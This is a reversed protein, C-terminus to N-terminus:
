DARFFRRQSAAEEAEVQDAYDAVDSDAVPIFEGISAMARLAHAASEHLSGDKAQITLSTGLYGAKGAKHAMGFRIRGRQSVVYGDTGVHVLVGLRRLLTNAKQRAEPTNLDVRRMFEDYGGSASQESSLASQLTERELELREIDSETPGMLAALARSPTAAYDAQYQSLLGKKEALRGDTGALRKLIEQTGDQILPRADLRVLMARFVQESNDLRVAKGACLGKRAKHCHLYTGGKPKKGKNVLHMATGCHVCKAVGQWVNFSASQKTGGGGVKRAQIAGQAQYFAEESIIRPFYDPIPDGAAIRKGEPSAQVSFPQYTGIVAKHALVKTVSSAGWTKGTFSPVGKANLMKAIASRGYGDTAWEFISRVIEVREPRPHFTGDSGLELWLPSIRGMPKKHERADEHKKRMADRVRRAKTASEEHARSMVFISLILDQEGSKDTYTRGDSLTVVRIGAQILTMFWPLAKWVDQRNLRDLSEVILTSGREITGDEVLKMFRALQGKEGLHEGKYGSLGEDSFNYDEGTALELGHQQCYQACAEEQRAKSRGKAQESSSFRVYSFAKHTM